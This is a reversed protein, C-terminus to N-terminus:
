FVLTQPLCEIEKNLNRFHVNRDQAISEVYKVYFLESIM